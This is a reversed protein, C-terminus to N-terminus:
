TEKDGTQEQKTQQTLFKKMKENIKREIDFMANPVDLYSTTQLEFRNVLNELEQLVFTIRKTEKISIEILKNITKLNAPNNKSLQAYGYITTTSNNIYHALTTLIQRLTELQAKQREKLIKEEKEKQKLEYENLTRKIVQPLLVLTQPSKVLFDNAGSKLVQVAIEVDNQGTLLIVPVDSQQRIKKLLEAGTTDPLNFDLIVVLANDVDVPEIDAAKSRLVVPFNLEESIQEKELFAYNPDDEVILIHKDNSTNM